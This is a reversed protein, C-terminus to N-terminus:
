PEIEDSDGSGRRVRLRKRQLGKKQRKIKNMSFELDALNGNQKEFALWAELLYDPYDLGRASCGKVYTEHAKQINGRRSPPADLDIM